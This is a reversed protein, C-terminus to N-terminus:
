RASRRTRARGANFRPCFEADAVAVAAGADSLYFQLLDPPTLPNILLPV